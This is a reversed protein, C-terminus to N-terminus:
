VLNRVVTYLVAFAVILLSWVTPHVRSLRAAVRRPPRVKPGGLVEVTWLGGLISIVMLGVFVVPNSIFAQGLHGHLLASGLRTGGCLPCEWGTLSRLPCPFGIGTTAYLGSVAVGFGVFTGLAKLARSPDFPQMRYGGVAANRIPRPMAPVRGSAMREM